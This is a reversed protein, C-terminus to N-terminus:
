AAASGFWKRVLDEVTAQDVRYDAALSEIKDGARFRDFITEVPVRTNSLVPQGFAVRADVAILRPEHPDFRWPFLRAALGAEDREIRTLGAQLVERMATQGLKSADILKGYHEVFLGIGDTSFEQEILPRKVGLERAVYDLARRVKQLSVQHQKRMTFLVSCEVLNWFSLGLPSAGAAHVVPKARRTGGKTPYDQGRLWVRLTNPVLGLWHAAEGLTYNPVDRPDIMDKAANSM